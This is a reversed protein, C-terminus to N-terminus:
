LAAPRYDGHAGRDDGALIWADQEDVRAAIARQERHQRELETDQRTVVAWMWFGAAAFVFVLLLLWWLDFLDAYTGLTVKASQHGLM